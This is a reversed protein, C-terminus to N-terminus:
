VAAPMVPVADVLQRTYPERPRDLVEATPGEEVVLGERMVVVRECLERVVAVDHTIFLLALDREACLRALLDVVQGQVALDLASVAEDCLLVRPEVSLARAIAARQLQGGSLEAPLRGALEPDLGVEGLLEAVREKQGRRSLRGGLARLPEAVSWGVTRSPDFSTHPNQFVPQVTRRFERHRRAVEEGDVRVRGADPEVLGLVARAVTTKGSGSEGLVGLAEGARLELGVGRLAHVTGRDQRYEKTLGTAQVVVPGPAALARPARARRGPVSEVLARTAPHEGGSLVVRSPGSEVLAGEHLVHVRETRSAAVALDHTVVVMSMDQEAVLTQLRDLIGRQVTVDLASTPEDALLLAPRTVIAAAILVRQRQGGSLQHPWRRGIAEADGLGADRLAQLARGERRGPEGLGHVDLPERVQDLVRRLPDLSSGPDQPVYGITTGVLRRRQAPSLASLERGALRISGQVEAQRGLLGLAARVVTSKGSGSAGVLSVAEGREVALDVGRVATTSRGRRRYTVALGRVELLPARGPSSGGPATAQDIQTSM